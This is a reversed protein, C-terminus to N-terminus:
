LLTLFHPLTCLLKLAGKVFGRRSWPDDDLHSSIAALVECEGEIETEAYVKEETTTSEVLRPSAQLRALQATSAMRNTVPNQITPSLWTDARLSEMKMATINSNDDEVISRSNGSSVEVGTWRVASFVLCM